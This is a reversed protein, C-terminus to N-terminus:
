RSAGGGGFILTQYVRRRPTPAGGAAAKLAFVVGTSGANSNSNSAWTRSAVNAGDNSGSCLALSFDNGTITEIDFRTAMTPNTGSPATTFDTQDDPHFAVYVVEVDSATPDFASFTVPDANAVTVNPSAATADLPSSTDAGRYACILGGFLLNDDSAKTFTFAAGSDGSSAVKIFVAYTHDCGGRTVDAEGQIVQTWTGDPASIANSLSNTIVVAVMVDNAQLTPATIAQSPTTINFSASGAAVFSVAAQARAPLLVLALLLVVGALTRKILM